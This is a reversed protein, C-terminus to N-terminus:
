VAIAVSEDAKLTITGKSASGNTLTSGNINKDEEENDSDSSFSDSGSDDGDDEDSSSEIPEGAALKAEKAKKEKAEKKAKKKARLQRREVKKTVLEERERVLEALFEPVTDLITEPNDRHLMFFGQLQAPTVSDEFTIKECIKDALEYIMADHADKRAQEKSDDVTAAVATKRLPTPENNAQGTSSRSLFFKLFMGHIQYKDAYDFIMKRDCRGPRILAPALKRIHNTTMFVVSGEQATIGDLANLIGSLTVNNNSEQAKGAKRKVLAADVDEMLLISNRPANNLLQDLQQDNLGTIGLNVICVSMRLHGALAVIFSTKGTGPPGHLLYGRRYPVGRDHYWQASNRFMSIDKLLKEKLGEALIVSHFARPARTSSSSWYSDYPQSTYITTKGDKKKYSEEM